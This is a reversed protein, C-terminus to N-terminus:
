PDSRQELFDAASKTLSDADGFHDGAVWLMQRAMKTAEESEGNLDLTHVLRMQETLTRRDDEGLFLRCNSVVEKRLACADEIRVLREYTGALLSKYNTTSYSDSAGLRLHRELGHEMRQLQRQLDRERPAFWQEMQFARRDTWENWWYEPRWGLDRHKM